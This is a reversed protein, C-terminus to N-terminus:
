AVGKARKWDGRSLLKYARSISDGRKISLRISKTKAEDQNPCKRFEIDYDGFIFAYIFGPGEEFSELAPAKQSLYHNDRIEYYTRSSNHTAPSILREKKIAEKLEAPASKLMSNYDIGTLQNIPIEGIINSKNRHHGKLPYPFGLGKSKRIEIRARSNKLSVM